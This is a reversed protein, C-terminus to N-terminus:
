HLERLALISVKDNTDISHATSVVYRVMWHSILEIRSAWFGAGSVVASNDTRVRIWRCVRCQDFSAHTATAQGERPTNQQRLIRRHCRQLNNTLFEPETGPIWAGHVPHPMSLSQGQSKGQVAQTTWWHVVVTQGTDMLWSDMCRESQYETMRYMRIVHGTWRFQATMLLAEIGSIQCRELVSTNPIMEQWKTNAIKRLCRLHFQDIKLYTLLYTLLAKNCLHCVCRYWM